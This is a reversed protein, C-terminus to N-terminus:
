WVGRGGRKVRQDERRIFEARRSAEGAAREADARQMEQAAVRAAAEARAAEAKEERRRQQALAERWRAPIKELAEFYLVLGKGGAIISARATKVSGLPDSRLRGGRIKEFGDFIQFEADQFTEHTRVLEALVAPIEDATPRIKKMADVLKHAHYHASKAIALRDRCDNEDLTNLNTLGDVVNKLSGAIGNACRAVDAVKEAAEGTAGAFHTEFREAQASLAEAVEGLAEQRREILDHLSRDPEGAGGLCDRDGTSAVDWPAAVAAPTARRIVPEAFIGAARLLGMKEVWSTQPAVRAVADAADGVARVMESLAADDLEARRERLLEAVSEVLRVAPAIHVFFDARTAHDGARDDNAQVLPLITAALRGTASGLDTLAVLQPDRHQAAHLLLNGVHLLGGSLTGVINRDDLMPRFAQVRNRIAILEKLTRGTATLSTTSLGPVWRRMAADLHRAAFTLPHFERDVGGRSGGPGWEQVPGRGAALPGTYSSYASHSVLM